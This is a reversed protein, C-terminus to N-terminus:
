AVGLLRALLAKQAHLRNHAQPFLVSHPGDAVEDTIEEGRHAPLCHMVIVDKDAEAVLAANVQYPPFVKARRAAEEEQGMSTWTDTYIVNAGRVADHPDRVLRVSAGTEAAFKEGLEVADPSLGYGEPNAIAFSAGLKTCVYMLSVAVNNGDGVYAVNLGKLSGFKEYITLADAMAQCPHNYDSLGNLVPVTAWKALEVVHAHDFVRAMVIQVYGSIVRAVDAISERKGLGIEAPSLYLADGGLHRMAMDFSVRTRLSPKQFIMALVKGQLLPQNGGAFYEKKLRVALDLLDQLEEASYDSVAIFDKM